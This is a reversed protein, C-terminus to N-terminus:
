VQGRIELDELEKGIIQPNEWICWGCNSDGDGEHEM